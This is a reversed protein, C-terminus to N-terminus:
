ACSSYTALNEGIVEGDPAAASLAAPKSLVGLVCKPALQQTHQGLSVWNGVSIGAASEERLCVNGVTESPTSQAFEVSSFQGATSQPSKYVHPRM